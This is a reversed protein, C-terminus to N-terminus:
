KTSPKRSAKKTNPKSKKLSKIPHRLFGLISKFLKAIFRVLNCLGIFIYEGVKQAGIFIAIMAPLICLICIGWGFYAYGPWEYTGLGNLLHQLLGTGSEIIMMPTIVIAPWIAKKWLKNNETVFTGKKYELNNFGLWLMKVIIVAGIYFWWNWSISFEHFFENM